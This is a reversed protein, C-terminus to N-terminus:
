ICRYLNITISDTNREKLYFFGLDALLLDQSKKLEKKAMKRGCFCRPKNKGSVTLQIM